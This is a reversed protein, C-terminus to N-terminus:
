KKKKKEEKKKKKRREGIKIEKKEEPPKRKMFWLVAVVVVVVVVPILSTYKKLRFLIVSFNLWTPGEKKEPETVPVVSQLGTAQGPTGAEGVRVHSAYVLSLEKERWLLLIEGNYETATVTAEWEDPTDTLKYVESWGGDYVRYYLDVKWPQVTVDETGNWFVFVRGDGTRLATGGSLYGVDSPAVAELPGWGGEYTMCALVKQSGAEEVEVFVMVREGDVVVDYLYPFGETVLPQPESIGESTVTRCYLDSTGTEYFIWLTDQAPIVKLIEDFDATTTLVTVGGWLGGELPQYEWFGRRSGLLWTEGWPVKVVFPSKLFPPSVTCSPSSWETTLTEFCISTVLEEEKREMTTWFLTLAGEEVLAAVFEGMDSFAEPPSWTGTYTRYELAVNGEEKLNGYVLWLANDYLFPTWWTAIEYASQSLQETEGLYLPPGTEQVAGALSFPAATYTLMLVTIYVYPTRSM